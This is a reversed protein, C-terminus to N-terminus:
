RRLVSCLRVGGPSPHFLGTSLFCEGLSIPVGLAGKSTVWCVGPGGRVGTHGGGVSHLESQASREVQDIGSWESLRRIPVEAGGRWWRPWTYPSSRTERWSVFGEWKRVRTHRRWLQATELPFPRRGILFLLILDTVGDLGARTLVWRRLLLRKKFRCLISVRQSVCLHFQIRKLIVQRGAPELLM